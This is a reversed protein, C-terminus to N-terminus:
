TSGMGGFDLPVKDPEKHNITNLIRERSTLRKNEETM